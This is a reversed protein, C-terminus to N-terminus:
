LIINRSNSELNQKLYHLEDRMKASFQGFFYFFGVISAVYLFEIRIVFYAKCKIYLVTQQPKLEM